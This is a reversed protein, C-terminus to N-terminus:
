DALDLQFGKRKLLFQRNLVLPVHREDPEDIVDLLELIIVVEEPRNDHIGIVFPVQFLKLFFQQLIQFFQLNLYRATVKHLFISAL